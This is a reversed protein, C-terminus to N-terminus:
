YFNWQKPGHHLRSQLFSSDEMSAESRVVRYEWLSFGREATIVFSEKIYSSHEFVSQVLSSSAKEYKIIFFINQM